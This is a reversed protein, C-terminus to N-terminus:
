PADDHSVRELFRTLDDALTSQTLVAVGLERLLDGWDEDPLAREIALLPIVSGRASLQHTYRLVQGLGIRLQMEINAETASKVEVVVTRGARLSFALDFLVGQGTPSLPALHRSQLESAIANQLKAHSALAREQAKYNPLTTEMPVQYKADEDAVVYPQTTGGLVVPVFSLDNTLGVLLASPVIADADDQDLVIEHVIQWARLLMSNWSGSLKRATALSPAFSATPSWREYEDATPPHGLERWCRVVASIAVEEDTFTRPVQSSPNSPLGAAALAGVWSGFRLTMTQMGPTPRGDPLVPHEQVFADYADTTVPGESAGAASRLMEILETEGYKKSANRVARLLIEVDPILEDAARRIVSTPLDALRAAEEISRTRLLAERIETGRSHLMQQMRAENGYKATRGPEGYKKLLQGVRQRSIGLENAIQQMTAFERYRRVYNPLDTDAAEDM